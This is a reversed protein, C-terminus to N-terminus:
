QSLEYELEAGQHSIPDYTVYPPGRLTYPSLHEESFDIIFYWGTFLLFVYICCKLVSWIVAKIALSQIVNYVNNQSLIIYKQPLTLKMIMTNFRSAWIHGLQDYKLDASLKKPWITTQKNYM